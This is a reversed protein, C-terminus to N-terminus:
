RNEKLARALNALATATDPTVADRVTGGTGTQNPRDTTHGTGHRENFAAAIRDVGTPENTKTM